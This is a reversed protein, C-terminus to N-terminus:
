NKPRYTKRQAITKQPTICIAIEKSLLIACFPEAHLLFSVPYNKPIGMEILPVRNSDFLLRQRDWRLRFMIRDAVTLMALEMDKSTIESEVDLSKFCGALLLLTVLSFTTATASM